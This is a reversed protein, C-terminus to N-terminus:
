GNMIEKMQKEAIEWGLNGMTKQKDALNFYKEGFVRVLHYYLEAQAYRLPRLFFSSNKVSKKMLRLFEIDAEKRHKKICGVYYAVDHRDCANFHLFKPPKIGTRGGCGNVIFAKQRKTLKEFIIKAM